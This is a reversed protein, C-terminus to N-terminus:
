RERKIKGEEVRFIHDCGEITTLRHAIIIMTKKGHLEHISEMIAAETNNDLASTAEDFILVKPNRFLARAIGIRQRQGGSLRVGREGIETDLGNPFQKVFEALSAEELAHWIDDDTFEAKPMGFAVNERITDDLMFIMQPIYGVQSLWGEMDDAIDYGDVLVQGKQPRLLGLVIDVATTKGAGSEGVIGASEGISITMSANQLVEKASDPYHYTIEHFDLEKECSLHVGEKKSGTEQRLDMMLSVDKRGSIDKLNEILKDLMPEGYSITALSASMRNVSPMLRVAAMAVASIVPIIKTLDEGGYLLAAAILFMAAMSAAEIIFRPTIGLIQSRRLSKVYQQGYKDYNKQFFDEEMSVKLEKIGQISQLLWKNMGAGATQNEIGANKLIPKIRWNILLLLGFLIGAMVVTIVPAMVFVAVILMVSVVAESFLLLVTLLLNFTITTDNSIIRIIEGSNVKLFYEYPRHIFSDLLKRQIEFMNGYVFRYQINYEILLYINKLIYVAALVIAVVVLFDRPSHIGLISCVWKVYPKEMIRDPNLAADMFPLILSVSCIEMLGGIIMLITLEIVRTKQHASLIIKFKKIVRVLTM